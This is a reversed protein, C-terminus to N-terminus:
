SKQRFYAQFLRPFFTSVTFEGLSLYLFPLILIFYRTFPTQFTMIVFYFIPLLFILFKTTMFKEKFLSYLTVFFSLIWIFNNSFFMPIVGGWSIAKNHDLMFKIIKLQYFVINFPMAPLYCLSFVIGTIVLSYIETKTEFKKNILKYLYILGLFIIIPSYFKSALTLGLFIGSAWFHKQYYLTTIIFGLLFTIQGLDLLSYISVERFVPDIIMLLTAILGVLNNKFVLVGLVYIELLFVIGFILNPLLPLNLYKASLGFLYKIFPPHQFNYETPKAGNTYLYGSALYIEADSIFIRNKIKDETDLIDQSHMYGDITTPDFKAFFYSKNLFTFVSFTLLIVFIHIKKIKQM